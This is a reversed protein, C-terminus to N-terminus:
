ASFPNLLAKLIQERSPPSANLVVWLILPAVKDIENVLARRQSPQDPVICGDSGYRGRGHIYFGGPFSYGRGPTTWHATASVLKNAEGLTPNKESRQVMYIGPPIPGGREGAEESIKRIRYDFSAESHEDRGQTSGRGGGSYAKMDFHKQNVKGYLREDAILYVLYNAPTTSRSSKTAAVLSM